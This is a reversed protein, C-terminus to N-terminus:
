RAATGPAAEPATELAQPRDLATDDWSAPDDLSELHTFVTLMPVADRIDREIVELLAHGRQVTWGGPVLVHVSIFRRAGSERTRLAHFQVGETAAYRDFVARIAAREDAPLATDLLGLASRRVLQLGSWVINAAVALAVLPDLWAWGTLAVAGVGVVVGVSTWVDTLLHRADAELTISCYARGARRLLLAVGLNILSAVVSVALGLGVHEVPQPHLLRDIAAYAISAAALLILGGESGSALYEVKEHGYAHEDDPKRHAVILAVLAVIAAVLNVGSELADSLLGVSGTLTYAGTKLGITLLAAAISLWAFRALPPREM